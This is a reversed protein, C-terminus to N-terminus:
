AATYGGDIVLETGTIWRAAPSALYVVADAVDAPRGFGLPHAAEFLGRGIALDPVLKLDVLHRVFGAGMDTEVIGPHVSNVRIGNRLQACEVAAAKTLARVGGKSAHYAAHGISGVMAAISSLNVISGGHGARGGVQMTRIGHKLGLFVGTLNVEQVRRFDEVTCDQLLAATEIGANNVLVDLRGFCDVARGVAREWAAEDAVDHHVFEARGGASRIEAACAKGLELLVDSLLVAAGAKALARAAEAGIGRAAGTVLAVQGGLEFRSGDASM